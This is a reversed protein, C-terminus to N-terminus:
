PNKRALQDAAEIKGILVELTDRKELLVALRDLERANLISHVIPSMFHLFQGGLFSLPKSSELLFIAPVTMGWRATARAIRDLLAEDEAARPSSVAKPELVTDSCPDTPREASGFWKRWM